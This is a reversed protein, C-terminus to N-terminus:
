IIKQNSFIIRREMEDIKYYRYKNKNQKLIMKKMGSSMYDFTIRNNDEIKEEITKSENKVEMRVDKVKLRESTKTEVKFDIKTTPRNKNEGLRNYFCITKNKYDDIYNNYQKSYTSIVKQKEEKDKYKIDKHSVEGMEISNLEFKTNMNMYVKLKGQHEIHELTPLIDKLGKLQLKAYRRDRENEALAEYINNKFLSEEEISNYKNNVSVEIMHLYTSRRKGYVELMATYYEQEQKLKKINDLIESVLERCNEGRSNEKKKMHVTFERSEEVRILEVKKANIDLKSKLERYSELSSKYKKDDSYVDEIRLDSYTIRVFYYKM